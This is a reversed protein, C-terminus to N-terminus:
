DESFYEDIVKNDDCCITTKCSDPTLFVGMRQMQMDKETPELHIHKGVESQYALRILETGLGLMGNPSLFMSISVKKSIDEGDKNFVKFTAVNDANEEFKDNSDDSLNIIYEM